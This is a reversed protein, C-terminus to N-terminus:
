CAAIALVLRASVLRHRSRLVCSPAQPLSVQGKRWHQPGVCDRVSAASCSAAACLGKLSLAICITADLNCTAFCLWMEHVLPLHADAPQM